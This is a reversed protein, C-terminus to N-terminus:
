HKSSISIKITEKDAFSVAIRKNVIKKVDILEYTYVACGVKYFHGLTGDNIVEIYDDSLALEEPPL